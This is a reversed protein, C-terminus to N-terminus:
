WSGSYYKKSMDKDKLIEKPCHRHSNKMDYRRWGTNQEMDMSRIFLFTRSPKMNTYTPVAGPIPTHKKKQCYISWNWTMTTEKIHELPCVTKHSKIHSTKRHTTKKRFFIWTSCTTFPSIKQATLCTSIRIMGLTQNWWQSSTKRALPPAWITYPGM